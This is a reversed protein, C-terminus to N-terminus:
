EATRHYHVEITISMLEVTEAFMWTREGRYVNGRNSKMRFSSNKKFLAILIICIICCLLVYVEILKKWKMHYSRYNVPILDLSVEDLGIDHFCNKGRLGRLAIVTSKVTSKLRTRVHNTIISLRKNKYRALKEVVRKIFVNCLPGM